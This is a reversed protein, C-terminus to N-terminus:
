EYSDRAVPDVQARAGELGLQQGLVWLSPGKRAGEAQRSWSWTTEPDPSGLFGIPHLKFSTEKASFNLRWAAGQTASWLWCGECPKPLSCASTPTKFGHGKREGERRIFMLIEYGNKCSMVPMKRIRLM